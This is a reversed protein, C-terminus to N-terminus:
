ECDHVPQEAAGWPLPHTRVHALQVFTSPVCFGFGLKGKGHVPVISFL